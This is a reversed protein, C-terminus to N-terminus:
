NTVSVQVIKFDLVKNCVLEIFSYTGFKASHGPSDARGDGSVVLGRNEEKLQAFLRRQYKEWTNSVAPQLYSKQYRFFTSSSIMACKLIRFIRLVKTPFAGSYLIAAASLINGAPHNSIFPQSNWTRQNECQSCKQSISIFSGMINKTVVTESSQCFTCTAFLGM